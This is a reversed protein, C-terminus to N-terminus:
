RVQAPVPDVIQLRLESAYARGAGDTLWADDPGPLLETVTLGVGDGGKAHAGRLLTCLLRTYVGSTLDVYSPKLETDVRVFVQEPLGMALRWRRVALYREREGKVTHLGTEGVTTRWTERVLVLGDVTVRPTRGANGALKWTDFVQYDFLPAFVELLPWRRGDDAHATLTGDADPRVTLATIPVLRDPDAGPADVFGIQADAPGHLWEAIRATHRPWDVPALLRVRGDPLDARMGDRLRQPDPHGYAFFHTDFAALAVHLEGLVVTFDGRLLATEDTACVHVDPSHIRAAAWGPATAPFAAAVRETLEAADFRLERADGDADALGLVTAWRGLFDATVAAGPPDAGFVMAQALFWLDALAVDVTASEAALDRYLATLADAYAAGIASTLWRASLLLPALPALRELLADGFGVDLDRVTELHCLTRGAYVEGPQQRAARGTLEVFRRDLASMAEALADPGDAAAVADRLAGVTSLDGLVRERATDDGIAALQERLVDEATLDVPLDFGIRLVGRGALDDLQAHVDAARRFGSAPDALLAAVLDAVRPGRQALALLAATAATVTQPPHHPHRLVRERVTLHPALRVPLWDRVGPARAFSEGLADLGWRELFVKRTRTLAAGPRVTAVPGPGGLETWCIPGFFGVTDNKLCYRQWYKAIVEERHRRRLNRPAHPGDRRIADVALLVAPNQWILATRFADDCAIDYVAQGLETAAADFAAGFDAADGEGRLHRDAAAALAPAAFRRMGAAPFGASRLM